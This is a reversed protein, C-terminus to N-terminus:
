AFMRVSLVSVARSEWLAPYINCTAFKRQQGTGTQRDLPEQGKEVMSQECMREPLKYIENLTVLNMPLKKKKPKTPLPLFVHM